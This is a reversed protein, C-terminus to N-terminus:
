YEWVIKIYQTFYELETMAKIVDLDWLEWQFDVWFMYTFPTKLSPMSEIKTLNVNNTAFAGLCKYLASPIHKTEFIISTKGKKDTFSLWTNRPVVVLFRTTNGDQDQISSDLNNLNYIEWALSSAIAWVWTKKNESIEQAAGATDRHLVAKIGKSKLYNHCQSLAQPHSYVEKIDEIKSENSLLCHQVELDIKGIIEYDYRLFNYLNEHINWAYSNEVPIVAITQNDIHEWVSKFDQLWLIEPNNLWLHEAAQLSALNSYAWPEWQYVIKM